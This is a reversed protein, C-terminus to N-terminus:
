TPRMRPLPATTDLFRDLTERVQPRDLSAAHPMGPVIVARWKPSSFVMQCLGEASSVPAFRLADIVYPDATGMIVLLPVSTRIWTRGTSRYGCQYGTTIIGDVTATMLNAVGSGESHGWVLLKSTPYTSRLREVALAAQRERFQYIEEKNPFPTQCSQPPRPDAFSDPAVVLFGREVLHQVWVAQWAFLQPGGLGDCGHLFLVIGRRAENGFSVRQEYARHVTGTACASLVFVAAVTVLPRGTVRGRSMEKITKTM